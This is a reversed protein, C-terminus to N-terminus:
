IDNLSIYMVIKFLRSVLDRAEGTIIHCSNYYDEPRVDLILYPKTTDVPKEMALLTRAEEKQMETRFDSEGVGVIVSSLLLLRSQLIESSKSDM